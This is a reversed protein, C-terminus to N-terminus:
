EKYFFKPPPSGRKISKFVKHFFHVYKSLHQAESTGARKMDNPIRPNKGKYTDMVGHNPIM